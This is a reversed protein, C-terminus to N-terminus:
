PRNLVLVDEAMLITNGNPIIVQKNRKILIVLAGGTDMEYLPKDVLDSMPKIHKELLVVDEAKEPSRASLVVTDGNQLVTSGNPIMREEKRRIMVILTAPPLTIDMLSKGCWQHSDDM